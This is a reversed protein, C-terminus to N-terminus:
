CESILIATDWDWDGMSGRFGQLLRVTTRHSEYGRPTDFRHRSKYLGLGNTIQSSDVLKNGDSDVLQNLWYNSLPNFITSYMYRRGCGGAGLTTGGYLM